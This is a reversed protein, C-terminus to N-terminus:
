LIVIELLIFALYFIRDPLSYRGVTVHVIEHSYQSIMLVFLLVVLSYVAVVVVILSIFLLFSLFLCRCMTRVFCRAYRTTASKLWTVTHTACTISRFLCFLTCRWLSLMYGSRFLLCFSICDYQRHIPAFLGVGSLQKEARVFGSRSNWRRM